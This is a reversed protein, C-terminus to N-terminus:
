TSQRASPVRAVLSIDTNVSELQYHPRLSFKATYYGPAGKVEQVEVEAAALPQRAKAIASASGPDACVYQRIWNTLLNQMDERSKFTGIEETIIQKLYHGFRSATMLYSLRASLEANEQDDQNQYKQVKQLSHAGMFSAHDADKWHCLPILGCTDFEKARRAGIAVETPCKLDVDGDDTPFTHTPLGELKGGMGDETNPGWIRAPWGSIKYARAICYGFAYASNAWLYKSHDKGDVEEEFDFESVPRTSKGYPLRALFRPGTLGLFRADENERLSRWGAYKKGELLKAMDSIEDIQQWSELGFLEPSVGSIFPAMAAASIQMMGKLVSVDTPSHSFYYDGILCGFPKGGHTDLPGYIMKFLPSQDWKAGPYRDFVEALEEKTANLVQIRLSADTEANMVLFYLGRWTAELEQLKPNHLIENIQDTLKTDLEAIMNELTRDLDGEIVNPSGETVRQVLEEVGLFAEPGLATVTEVARELNFNEAACM